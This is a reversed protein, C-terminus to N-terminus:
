AHGPDHSLTAPTIHFRDLAAQYRDEVPVDFLIEPSYEITLWGNDLIEADLQGPAWGCCGLAFVSAKPAPGFAMARLIDLTATLCIGNAAPFTNQSSYDDTHLVFGRGKEVPGGKLVERERITDPLRILMDPDGLDLQDLIDGFTMEPLTQNIVLGMAGDEGHGVLYIVTRAFREDGMDPMAVLFQGELTSIDTTKM